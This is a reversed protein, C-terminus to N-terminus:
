ALLLLVAWGRHLVAPLAALQLALALGALLWGDALAPALVAAGVVVGGALLETRWRDALGLGAGAIVLALLLAAVEPLYDYVATAAADVLYLTAFGTATLALAGSRATER